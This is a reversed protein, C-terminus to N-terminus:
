LKRHRERVKLAQLRMKLGRDLLQRDPNSMRVELIANSTEIAGEAGHQTARRLLKSTFEKGLDGIGIVLLTTRGRKLAQPMSLHLMVRDVFAVNPLVAADHPGM